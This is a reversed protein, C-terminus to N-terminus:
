FQIFYAVAETPTKRQRLVNVLDCVTSSFRILQLLPPGLTRIHYTESLRYM